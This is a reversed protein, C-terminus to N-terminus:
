ALACAGSVAWSSSCGVDSQEVLLVNEWSQSTLAALGGCIHTPSSAHDAPAVHDGIKMM